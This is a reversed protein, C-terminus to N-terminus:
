RQLKNMLESFIKENQEANLIAAARGSNTKFTRIKESTLANLQEALRQPTFDEAVVGNDYTRVIAAM